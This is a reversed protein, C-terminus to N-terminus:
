IRDSHEGTSRRHRWSAMGGSHGGALKWADAIADSRRELEAKDNGHRKENRKGKMEM